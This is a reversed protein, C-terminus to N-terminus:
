LSAKLSGCHALTAQGGDGSFDSTASGAVTTIIGTSKTVVRIRHNETDAIYVNGYADVGVGQPFRLQAVKAQGGDGSYGYQGTGAVTTIIGTSKAVMRIVHNNKDAIYIHGSVDVAVAEPFNLQSTTALGGDGGRGAMASGAVTTIIIKPEPVAATAAFKQATSFKTEKPLFMRLKETHTARFPFLNAHTM